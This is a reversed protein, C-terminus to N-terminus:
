VDNMIQFLARIFKSRINSSEVITKDEVVEGAKERVVKDLKSTINWLLIALVALFGFLAWLLWNSSDATNAETGATPAPTAAVPAAVGPNKIYLLINQIQEKNLTPFSQM